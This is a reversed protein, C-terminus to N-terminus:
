RLYALKFSLFWILLTKIMEAFVDFQISHFVSSFWLVWVPTRNWKFRTAFVYVIIIIIWRVFGNILTSSNSAAFRYLYCKQKMNSLETYVILYTALATCWFSFKNGVYKRCIYEIWMSLPFLTTSYEAWVFTLIFKLRCDTAAVFFISNLM